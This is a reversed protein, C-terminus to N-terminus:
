SLEDRVLDEVEDAIRKAKKTFRRGKKTKTLFCALAITSLAGAIHCCLAIRCSKRHNM